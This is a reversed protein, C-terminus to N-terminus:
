RQPNDPLPPPTFTIWESPRDAPFIRYFGTGSERDLWYRRTQGQHYIFRPESQLARELNTSNSM